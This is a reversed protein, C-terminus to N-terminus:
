LMSVILNSFEKVKEEVKLERAINLGKIYWQLSEESRGKRNMIEGMELCFSLDSSTIELLNTKLIQTQIEMNCLDVILVVWVNDLLYTFM